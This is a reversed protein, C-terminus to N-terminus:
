ALGSEAAHLPSQLAAARGCQFTTPSVAAACPHFSVKILSEGEVPQRVPPTAPRRETQPQATAVPAAVASSSSGPRGADAQGPGEMQDLTSNVLPLMLQM